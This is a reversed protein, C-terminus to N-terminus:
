TLCGFMSLNGVDPRRGTFAEAPTKGGVASHPSRNQLYVLVSCAGVWFFLPLGQDHLMVRTAGVISKNKRKAVM